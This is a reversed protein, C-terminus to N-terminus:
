FPRPPLRTAPDENQDDEGDEGDEEVLIFENQGNEKLEGFLGLLQQITARKGLSDPGIVSQVEVDKRDQMKILDEDISDKVVFRLVDVVQDQGLRFARCYAQAEIASNFWLDLIIVKSAMTLNLGVGGAKLSCIMIFVDPNHEFNRIAKERAEISMKGNFKVHGWGEAVCVQSFLRNLDLFQTYVIIKQGPHTERWNLIAAKTAALKASPLSGGGEEIWDQYEEDEDEDAADDITSSRRARANRGIAANEARKLQKAMKRKKKMVKPLVAASGFGLEALGSCATTEEISSQCELCATKEEGRLKREEHLAMMCEQCYVHFCSTCVPNDPPSRCKACTSRLHLEAWTDSDSLKRLFKRFKYCLGYSSGTAMDNEDQIEPTTAPTLTLVQSQSTQLTNEDKALMKRLTKIMNREGYDDSGQVESATLRWLSEVDAATFMDKLVDQVLLVHSCLMRLRLLMSLINGYNPVLSGSTSYANIQQIYRSKVMNYIKREVPNFEVLVTKHTIGPLKVIPAGFLTDVHTRRLMIARLINHIRGMQVPERSSTRNNAYNHCFTQYTGTHPVKLFAFYPYLEEIFNLIPTGTICWKFNGTLARVAISTKSAHNKIHHAEDLVIRHFKIRHLPGVNDHYYKKWWENKKEESALHKPPECLPYSKQVEGYTTLIVDYEMLDAVVNNSQLRSGSHYRLIRGLSNGKVHTDMEQMWQNLLTPPAIFLTTKIGSGPEARGDIMNAIMQITKGFGMEDCVMGGKPKSEGNERERLFAAGLLQHHYLSSAMGKLVWGGHGDSRVAGRGRFKVTAEIIAARDNTALGRDASPISAILEQLAKVKNTATFTPMDPLFANAINSMNPRRQRGQKRAPPKIGSAKDRLNRKRPQRDESLARAKRKPKRGEGFGAHIGASIADDVDKKSLRNRTKPAARKKQPPGLPQPDEPIFLSDEEQYNPPLSDEVVIQSREIDRLRRHEASEETNFRIDDEQTNTGEAKKTEYERKCKEFATTALQNAAVTDKHLTTNWDFIDGNDDILDGLPEAHEGAISDTTNEPSAIDIYAGTTSDLAMAAQIESDKALDAKNQNYRILADFGNMDIEASPSPDFIPLPEFEVDGHSETVNSNLHPKNIHVGDGQEPNNLQATTDPQISAFEMSDHALQDLTSSNTRLSKEPTAIGVTEDPSYGRSTPSSTKGDGIQVSKPRALQNGPQIAASDIADCSEAATNDSPRQQHELLGADPREVDAEAMTSRIDPINIVGERVEQKIVPEGPPLIEVECVSGDVSDGTLDIYDCHPNIAALALSDM